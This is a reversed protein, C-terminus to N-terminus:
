QQITPKLSAGNTIINPYELPNSERDSMSSDSFELDSYLRLITDRLMVEHISLALLHVFMLAILWSLGLPFLWSPVTLNLGGITMKSEINAKETVIGLLLLSLVAVAVMNFNISKGIEIFLPHLKDIYNLAVAHLETKM